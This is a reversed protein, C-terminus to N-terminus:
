TSDMMKPSAPNRDSFGHLSFQDALLGWPEVTEAKEVNLDCTCVVRGLKKFLQAKAMLRLDNNKYPLGVSDDEGGKIRVSMFVQKRENTM